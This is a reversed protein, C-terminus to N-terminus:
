GGLAPRDAEVGGMQRRLGSSSSRSARCSRPGCRSLEEPDNFARQGEIARLQEILQTLDEVNRGQQQLGRRLAEAAERQNRLERGYQRVDEGTYPGNVGGGQAGGGGLQTPGRSNGGQPNLGRQARDV